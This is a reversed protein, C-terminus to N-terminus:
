VSSVTVASEGPQALAHRSYERWQEIRERTVRGAEEPGKQIATILAEHDEALATYDTPLAERHDCLMYAFPAAAIAQCAQTLFFNGSRRYMEQHFAYDSLCFEQLDHRHAAQRMGEVHQELALRASESWRCAVASAAAPELILRVDFLEEVEAQTYCAVNTSRNLLKTVLRQNHLDQLAANVTAQSVGMEKALKAELLREGPKLEGSLIRSVLLQRVQETRTVVSIQM